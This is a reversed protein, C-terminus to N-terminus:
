GFEKKEEQNPDHHIHVIVPTSKRTKLAIVARNFGYMWKRASRMRRLKMLGYFCNAHNTEENEEDENV